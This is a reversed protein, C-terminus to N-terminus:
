ELAIVQTNPRQLYRLRKPDNHYLHVLGVIPELTRKISRIGSTDTNVVLTLGSLTAVQGQVQFLIHGQELYKDVVSMIKRRKLLTEPALQWDSRAGIFARGASGITIHNHDFEAIFDHALYRERTDAPLVENPMLGRQELSTLFETILM